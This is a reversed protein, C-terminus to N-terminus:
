AEVHQQFNETNKIVKKKTNCMVSLNTRMNCDLEIHLM